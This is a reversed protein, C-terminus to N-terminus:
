AETEETAPAIMLPSDGNSVSPDRSRCRCQTVLLSVSTVCYVHLSTHRCSVPLRHVILGCGGHSSPFFMVHVTMYLFPCDTAAVNSISRLQLYNFKKRKKCKEKSFTGKIFHTGTYQEYALCNDFRNLDRNRHEKFYMHRRDVQILEM